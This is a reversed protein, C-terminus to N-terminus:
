AQLHTFRLSIPTPQQVQEARVALLVGEILAVLAALLLGHRLMSVTSDRAQMLVCIVVPAFLLCYISRLWLPVPRWLWGLGIGGALLMSVVLMQRTIELYPTGPPLFYVLWYQLDPSELVFLALSICLSAISSLALLRRALEHKVLWFSIVTLLLFLLALCLEVVLTLGSVFPQFLVLAVAGAGLTLALSTLFLLGFGPSWFNGRGMAQPLGPGTMGPRYLRVVTEGQQLPIASVVYPPSGPLSLAHTADIAQEAIVSLVQRIELMSVPRAGEDFATMQQILSSLVPPVQANVRSISSFIFPDDAHFPDHGTLCHHLTAGLGYIDTRPTTQGLGHQEPAAYGRSGLYETDHEQGEKFFRAIGFDILYVHGDSTIMINTPKVDRFIISPTQQHLYALVNCLQLAYRLVSDVPLPRNQRERLLQFLTKGEIYDMVLYSRGNDSLAQHIRPLNPHALAELIRAEQHFRALALEQEQEDGGSLSMEKIAVRRQAMQTDIAEYVVSMGGRGSQGVILYRGYLISQPSLKGAQPKSTSM